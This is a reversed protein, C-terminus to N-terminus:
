QDREPTAGACNEPLKTMIKVRDALDLDGFLTIKSPNKLGTEVVKGDGRPENGEYISLAKSGTEFSYVQFGYPRDDYSLLKEGPRLDISFASGCHPVAVPQEANVSCATLVIMMLAPYKIM